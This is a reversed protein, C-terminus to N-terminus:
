RGGDPVSPAWWLYTKGGPGPGRGAPTQSDANFQKRTIFIVHGALAVIAGGKKSHLVGIGEGNSVRPYNGGDNYEFAGPQGFGNVNEDPEWLLYCMPSWVTSSKIIAYTGGPPAGQFGSGPFNAASGDMVYSSLRNNRGGQSPPKQYTPSKMDVPCLFSKPNPMYAFLLGTKYATLQNNQYPGGPGPDPITGGILDYLWGPQPGSHNALQGGGDWNCFPLYDTYDSGYGALAVVIQKQNNICITRMAKDKASALAPLLLAALIAIIAIVVLLEILTFARRPSAPPMKM